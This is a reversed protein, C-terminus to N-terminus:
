CVQSLHVVPAATRALQATSTEHLLLLREGGLSSNLDGVSNVEPTGRGSFGWNFQKVMRIMIDWRIGQQFWYLYYGQSRSNEKNGSTLTPSVQIKLDQKVRVILPLASDRLYLRQALDAVKHRNRKLILLWLTLSFMCTFHQHCVCMSM